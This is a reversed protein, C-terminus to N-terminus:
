FDHQSGPLKEAGPVLPAVNDICKLSGDFAQQCRYKEMDEMRGMLLLNRGAVWEDKTVTPTLTTYFMKNETARSQNQASFLTVHFRTQVLWQQKWEQISNALSVQGKSEGDTAVCLGPDLRFTLMGSIYADAEEWDLENRKRMVDVRAKELAQAQSGGVLAICHAGTIVYRVVLTEGFGEHEGPQYYVEKIQVYDNVTFADAFSVTSFPLAMALWAM